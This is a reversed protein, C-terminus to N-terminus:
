MWDADMIHFVSHVSMESANLDGCTLALMTHTHTHELHIDGLHVGGGAQAQGSVGDVAVVHAM